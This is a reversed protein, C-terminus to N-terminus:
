LSSVVPGGGVLEPVAPRKKPAFLSIRDAYTRRLGRNSGPYTGLTVQLTTKADNQTRVVLPVSQGLKLTALV